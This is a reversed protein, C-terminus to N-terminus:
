RFQANLNATMVGMIYDASFVVVSLTEIGQWICHPVAAEIEQVSELVVLVCNLVVLSIVFKRYFVVSSSRGRKWEYLAVFLDSVQFVGDDAGAVDRLMKKNEQANTVVGTLASDARKRGQNGRFLCQLRSAAKQRKERERTTEEELVEVFSEALVSAPVACIGVAVFVAISCGLKGATCRSSLNYQCCLRCVGLLRVFLHLFCLSSPLYFPVGALHPCM